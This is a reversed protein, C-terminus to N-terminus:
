KKNFEKLENLLKDAEKGMYGGGVMKIGSFRNMPDSWQAYSYLVFADLLPLENLIM